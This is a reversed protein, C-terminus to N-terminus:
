RAVQLRGRLLRTEHSPGVATELAEVGDGGGGQEVRHGLEPPHGVQELDEGEVVPVDVVAVLDGVGGALAHLGVQGVRGADLVHLPHRAGLQRGRARVRVGPVRHVLPGAAGEQRGEEGPAMVDDDAPAVEGVVSVVGRAQGARPRQAHGLVAGVRAQRDVRHVAQVLGVPPHAVHGDELVPQPRGPRAEVVQVLLQHADVLAPHGTLQFQLLHPGVGVQVVLHRHVVGGVLPQQHRAVLVRHGEGPEPVAVRRQLHVRRRGHGLRPEHAALLDVGDGVQHVGQVRGRARVHGAVLLPVVLREVHVLGHGPM